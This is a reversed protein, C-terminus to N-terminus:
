PRKGAADSYYEIGAFTHRYSSDFDFDIVLAGATLALVQTCTTNSDLLQEFPKGM